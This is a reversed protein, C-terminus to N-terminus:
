VGEGAIRVQPQYLGGINQPEFRHLLWAEIKWVEEEMGAQRFIEIDNCLQELSKTSIETYLGPNLNVFDDALERVLEEDRGGVEDKSWATKLQELEERM